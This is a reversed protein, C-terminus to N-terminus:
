SDRRQSVNNKKGYDVAAQNKKGKWTPHRNIYWQEARTQTAIEPFSQTKSTKSINHGKAM